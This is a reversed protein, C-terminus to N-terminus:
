RTPLVDAAPLAYRGGRDFFFYEASAPDGPFTKCNWWGLWVLMPRHASSPHFYYRKASLLPTGEPVRRFRGFPAWLFGALSRVRPPRARCRLDHLAHTGWAVIMAALYFALHPAAVRAAAIAALSVALTIGVLTVSRDLTGPRAPVPQTIADM